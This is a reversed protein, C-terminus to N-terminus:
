RYPDRAEAIGHKQAPPAADAEEAPADPLSQVRELPDSTVANRDVLTSTEKSKIVQRASQERLVNVSTMHTAVWAIAVAATDAEIIWGVAVVGKQGVVGRQPHPREDALMRVVRTMGYGRLKSDSLPGFFFEGLKHRESIRQTGSM